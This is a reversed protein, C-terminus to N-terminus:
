RHNVRVYRSLSIITRSRMAFTSRHRRSSRTNTSLVLEPAFVTNVAHAPAPESGPVIRTNSTAYLRTRLRASRAALSWPWTTSTTGKSTPSGSASGTATAHAISAHSSAPRGTRRAHTSWMTDQGPITSGTSSTALTHSARPTGSNTSAACAM